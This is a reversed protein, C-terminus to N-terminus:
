SHGSSEERDQKTKLRYLKYLKCNMLKDLEKQSMWSPDRRRVLESLEGLRWKDLSVLDQAGNRSRHSEGRTTLAQQYLKLLRVCEDRTFFNM